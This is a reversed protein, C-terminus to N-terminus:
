ESDTDGGMTPAELYADSPDEDVGLASALVAEPDLGAAEVALYVRLLAELHRGGGRPRRQRQPQVRNGPRPGDQLIHAARQRRVRVAGAGCM